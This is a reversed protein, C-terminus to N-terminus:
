DDPDARLKDLHGGVKAEEPVPCEMRPQEKVQNATAAMAEVAVALRDLASRPM